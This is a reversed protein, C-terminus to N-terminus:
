VPAGRAGRGQIRQRAAVQSRLIQAPLEGFL